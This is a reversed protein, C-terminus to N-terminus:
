SSTRTASWRRAMADRLAERMRVTAMLRRRRRDAGREDPETARAVRQPAPGGPGPTPPAASPWSRPGSAPRASRRAPHPDPSREDVAYWGPVQEGVVYLHDYLSDLPPEPSADAFEVAAM